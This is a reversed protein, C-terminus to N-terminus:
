SCFKISSVSATALALSIFLTVISHLMFYHYFNFSVQM